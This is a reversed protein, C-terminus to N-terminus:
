QFFSSISAVTSFYAQSIHDYEALLFAEFKTRGDAVMPPEEPQEASSSQLLRGIANIMRTPDFM